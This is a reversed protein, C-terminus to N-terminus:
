VRELFGPVLVLAIREVAAHVAQSGVGAGGGLDGAEEPERPGRPGLGRAGDVLRSAVGDALVDVLVEHPLQLSARHRPAAAAAALPPLRGGAGLLAVAAALRGLAGHLFQVQQELLLLTHHPSGAPEGEFREDRQM